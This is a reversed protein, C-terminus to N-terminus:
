AYEKPKRTEKNRFLKTWNCNGCYVQLEQRAEIPRKSYYLWESYQGKKRRETYKDPNKHDFNLVRRDTVTCPGDHWCNSEQCQCKEGGLIAFLKNRTDQMYKAKQDYMKRKLIPNNRIKDRQQKWTLKLKLSKCAMTSFCELSHTIKLGKQLLEKESFVNSM